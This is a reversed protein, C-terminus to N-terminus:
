PIRRERDVGPPGKATWSGGVGSQRSADSAAFLRDLLALLEKPSFPKTVYADAGAALGRERDTQHAKATVLVVLIGRTFADDKLRRCVDLGHIGPMEADLLLADPLRARAMELGSSGDSALLADYGGKRLTGALVLRMHAHDDVVLITAV